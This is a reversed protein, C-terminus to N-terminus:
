ALAKEVYYRAPGLTEWAAGDHYGGRVRWLYANPEYCIEIGSAHRYRRKGIRAWQGSALMDIDTRTALAPARYRAHTRTGHQLDRLVAPLPGCQGVCRRRARRVRRPVVPPSYRTAMCPRLLHLLGRTSSCVRGSALDREHRISTLSPMKLQPVGHRAEALPKCCRPGRQRGSPIKARRTVEAQRM